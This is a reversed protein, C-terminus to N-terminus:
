KLHLINKNLKHRRLVKREMLKMFRVRTFMMTFKIEVVNQADDFCSPKEGSGEFINAKDDWVNPEEQSSWKGHLLVEDQLM